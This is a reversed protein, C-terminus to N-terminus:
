PQLQPQPQLQYTTLFVERLLRAVEESHLPLLMATHVVSDRPGAAAAGVGPAPSGSSGSSSSGTGGAAATAAAAAVALEQQGEGEGQQQRPQQKRVVYKVQGEPVGSGAWVGAPLTCVVM